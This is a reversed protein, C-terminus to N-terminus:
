SLLPRVTAIATDSVPTPCRRRLDPGFDELVEPLEVAGRRAAVAAGAEAQRDAPTQRLHEAARDVSSLSSPLPDVKVSRSGDLTM